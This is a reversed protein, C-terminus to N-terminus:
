HQLEKPLKCTKQVSLIAFLLDDNNYVLKITNGFCGQTIKKVREAMDVYGTFRAAWVTDADDPDLTNDLETIISGDRGEIYLIFEM